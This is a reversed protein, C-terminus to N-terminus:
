CSHESAYAKSFNHLAAQLVTFTYHQRMTRTPSNLDTTYYLLALPLTWLTAFHYYHKICCLLLQCLTGTSATRPPPLKSM